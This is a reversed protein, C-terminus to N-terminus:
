YQQFDAFMAAPRAIRGSAGTGRAIMQENTAFGTRSYSQTTRGNNNALRLTEFRCHVPRRTTSM